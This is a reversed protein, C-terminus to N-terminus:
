QAEQRRPPHCWHLRTGGVSMDTCGSLVPTVVPVSSETTTCRSSTTERQRAASSATPARRRTASNSVSGEVISVDYPGPETHSTAELFHSIHVTDAITLLEDECDLLTL